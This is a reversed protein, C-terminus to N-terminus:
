EAALQSPGCLAKCSCFHGQGREKTSAALKENLHIDHM